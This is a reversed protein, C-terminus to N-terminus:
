VEFLMPQGAPPERKGRKKSRALKPQGTDALADGELNALVENAREIVPRPLGALRAVHIGYSKDTAGPMIKRLFIVKDGWEKVAVNYNKV